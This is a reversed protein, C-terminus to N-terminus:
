EIKVQDGLFKPRKFTFIDIFMKVRAFYERVQVKLGYRGTVDKANFGIAKVGKFYGIMVARENHFKQSIFTVKNQGFIKNARVVSDLTRFGAYDLFIKNKPIGRAVLDNFIDTPEDYDAKGNDGSVLIFKIKGAKFLKTAADLRYTYYLNIRGSKLYKSTGLLVGVQNAPITNISNYIRSKGYKKVIFDCSYLALAALITAILLFSIIKKV